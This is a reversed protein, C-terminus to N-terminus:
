CVLMIRSLHYKKLEIGCQVTTPTLVASGADARRTGGGLHEHNVEGRASIRVLDQGQQRAERCIATHCNSIEPYKFQFYLFLQFYDM